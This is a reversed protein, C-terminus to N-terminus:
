GSGAERPEGEVALGYNGEGAAVPRLAGDGTPTEPLWEKVWRQQLLNAQVFPDEAVTREAEDLDEAEFTILGGNKDAFPGGTYGRLGLGHWHGVHDPAVQPIREPEPKMLYFYIYRKTM